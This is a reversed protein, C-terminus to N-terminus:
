PESEYRSAGRASGGGPKRDRETKARDEPQQICPEDHDQIQRFTSFLNAPLMGTSAPANLCFPLDLQFCFHHNVPFRFPQTLVRFSWFLFHQLRWISVESKQLEGAPATRMEVKPNTNKGMTTRVTSLPAHQPSTPVHFSFTSIDAEGKKTEQKARPSYWNSQSYALPKAKPSTNTPFASFSLQPFHFTAFSTPSHYFTSLLFYVNAEEKRCEAKAKTAHFRLV